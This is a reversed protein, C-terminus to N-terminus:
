PISYKRLIAEILSVYEVNELAIIDLLAIDLLAIDKHFKKNSLSVATTLHM